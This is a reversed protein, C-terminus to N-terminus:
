AVKVWLADGFLAALLETDPENGAVLQEFRLEEGDVLWGATFLVNNAATGCSPDSGLVLSVRGSAVTYTGDCAGAPDEIRLAGEDFTLTWLGQYNHADAESMGSAMLAEVTREARFSGQPFEGSDVASTGSGAAEASTDGPGVEGCPATGGSVQAVPKMDRIAAILDRTEPEAELEEYVPAVATELAAITAEDAVVVSGGRECFATAEDTDSARTEIAWQQTEAAAQELIARQDDGLRDFVEANIVLANVKPFYVVNGTATGTPAWAYGSEMGDQADPDVSADTVSAGLAEFMAQTSASTMARIVAGEYTEPGLLPAAFGYPHRLGEPLLALGIVGVDPLGSLLGDVVDSSVVEDLLGDTTILFPASLARLSTVGETDWARSPINGMDLEGSVVRRAVHQDGDRTMGGTAEWQPEIVIRGESLDAVRAAFEEIQEAAPRGPTDATGVTLTLPPEDGGAKSASDSACASLALALSSFAILTRRLRGMTDEKQQVMARFTHDWGVRNMAALVADSGM